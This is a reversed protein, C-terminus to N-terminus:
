PFSSLIVHPKVISRYLFQITFAPANDNNGVNVCVQGKEFSEKIFDIETIFINQNKVAIKEFLALIADACQAINHLKGLFAINMREASVAVRPCLYNVAFGM